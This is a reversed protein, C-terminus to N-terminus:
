KFGTADDWEVKLADRGKKAAWFTTAISPWAPRSDRRRLARGSHGDRQRFRLEESATRLAACARRGGDAHGAAERGAHLARHREVQGELRHAARAQRHVRLGERGQAQRDRAGTAEGAADALEGFTAKKGSAHFVVGNKVQVSDAPVKWQERPPPSSCRARPPAPRGTSSSRIRSRRRAAPARRQVGCSTTTARPTPPRARSACRRGRPMSSRPSWRPCARHVRGPGDRPAQRRRHRHQRKGIRLFANPEFTGAAAAGVTKGPGSMQAAADGFYLGLTLGAGAAATSKLFVRRSMTGPPTADRPRMRMPNM